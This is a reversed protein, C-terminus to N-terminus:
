KKKIYRIIRLIFPILYALFISVGICVRKDIKKLHKPLIFIGFTLVLLAILFEWWKVPTSWSINKM